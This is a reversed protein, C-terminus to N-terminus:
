QSFLNNPSLSICVGIRLSVNRGLRRIYPLWFLSVRTITENRDISYVICIVDAKRIESDLQDRNEPRAVFGNANRNGCKTTFLISYLYNRKLNESHM